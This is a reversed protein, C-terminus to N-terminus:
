YEPKFEMLKEPKILGFFIQKQLMHASRYWSICEKIDSIQPKETSVDVDIISGVKKPDARPSTLKAQSHIQLLASFQDQEINMRVSLSKPDITEGDITTSLRLSPVINEEFFDAYRLGLREISPQFSTQESLADVLKEMTSIIKTWGPYDSTFNLSFMQPGLRLHTGPENAYFEIHPEHRISVEQRRIEDPISNIPLDQQKPFLDKIALYIVGPLVAWSLETTFRVELVTDIITCPM